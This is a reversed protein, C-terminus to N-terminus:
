KKGPLLVSIRTSALIESNLQDITIEKAELISEGRVLKAQDSAFIKQNDSDILMRPSQLQTQEPLGKGRTLKAQGELFIRGDQNNLRGKEASVEITPATKSMKKIDIRQMQLMDEEPIHELRQSVMVTTEGKSPASRVWSFNEVFYDPTKLSGRPSDDWLRIGTRLATWYSVGALLGALLIPALRSVFGLAAAVGANMGAM